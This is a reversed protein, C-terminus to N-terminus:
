PSQEAYHPDKTICLTAKFSKCTISHIVKCRILYGVHGNSHISLHKWEGCRERSPDDFDEPIIVLGTTTSKMDIMAPPDCTYITPISKTVFYRLHPIGQRHPMEDGHIHENAAIFNSTSVAVLSIDLEGLLKSACFTPTGDSVLLGLYYTGRPLHNLEFAYLGKKTGDIEGLIWKKFSEASPDVCISVPQPRRAM